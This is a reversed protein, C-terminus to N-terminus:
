SVLANISRSIHRSGPRPQQANMTYQKSFLRLVELLSCMPYDLRIEPTM